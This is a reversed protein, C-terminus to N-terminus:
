RVPRARFRKGSMARPRDKGAWVVRGRGTRGMVTFPCPCGHLRAAGQGGAPTDGGQVSGPGPADVDLEVVGVPAAVADGGVGVVPCRLVQVGGPLEAGAPQAGAALGGDGLDQPAAAQAHGVEVAGVEGQGFPLGGGGLAGRDGLRQAGAAGAGGAPGFLGVVDGAGEAFAEVAGSPSGRMVVGARWRRETLVVQCAVSGTRAARRAARARRSWASRSM